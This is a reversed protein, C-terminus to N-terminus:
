RLWYCARGCAKWFGRKNGRKANITVTDPASDVTGDNVMLTVVYTGAKDATSTPNACVNSRETDGQQAIAEHYVVLKYTLANGNAGSSGSGELKVTNGVIVNPDDVVLHNLDNVQLDNQLETVFIKVWLADGFEYQQPVPPVIVAQVIPPPPASYWFM